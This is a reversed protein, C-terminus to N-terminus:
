EEILVIGASDRAKAIVEEPLGACRVAITDGTRRNFTIPRNLEEQTFPRYKDAPIDMISDVGNKFGRAQGVSLGITFAAAVSEGRAADTVRLVARQGDAKRTVFYVERGDQRKVCSDFTFRESLEAPMDADTMGQRITEGYSQM